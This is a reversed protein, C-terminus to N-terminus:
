PAWGAALLLFMVNYGEFKAEVQGVELGNAIMEGNATVQWEWRPPRDSKVSVELMRSRYKEMEHIHAGSRGKELRSGISSVVVLVQFASRGAQSLRHSPTILNGCRRFILEIRIRFVTTGM